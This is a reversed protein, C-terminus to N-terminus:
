YSRDHLNEYYGHLKALEADSLAHDIIAAGIFHTGSEMANGGAEAGLHLVDNADDTLDTWALTETEEFTASNIAWKLTDSGEDVTLILLHNTSDAITQVTDERNTGVGDYQRFTVLDSSGVNLTFGFDGNSDGTGMLGDIHTVNSKFAVAITFNADTKHMTEVFAPNSAIKWRASNNMVIHGSAQGEDNFTPATGLLTSADYASNGAVEVLTNSSVAGAFTMDWQAEVGTLIDELLAKGPAKVEAETQGVYVTGGNGAVTGDFTMRLYITIATPEGATAPVIIENRFTLNREGIDDSDPVVNGTVGVMDRSVHQVAGTTDVVYLRFSTCGKLDEIKIRTTVQLGMGAAMDYNALVISDDLHVRAEETATAGSIVMKQAVQSIGNIDTTVKSAVISLNSGSARRVEVDDAVDGTTGTGATGATGAMTPNSNVAAATSPLSFDVPGVTREYAVKAALGVLHAGWPSYHVGDSAMVDAIPAYPLGSTPETTGTDVLDDWADIEVCKSRAACAAKIGARWAHQKVVALNLDGASLGSWDGRPHVNVIFIVEIGTAEVADLLSDLDALNDEVSTGQVELDNTGATLFYVKANISNIKTITAAKRSEIDGITEGSVAVINGHQVDLEQGSLALFNNLYGTDRRQMEVGDGSGSSYGQGIHFSDGDAVVAGVSILSGQRRRANAAQSASHSIPRTIPRTLM